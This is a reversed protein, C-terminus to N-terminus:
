ITANSETKPINQNTISRLLVTVNQMLIDDSGKKRTYNKSNKM